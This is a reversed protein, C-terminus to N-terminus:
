VIILYNFRKKNFSFCKSFDFRIFITKIKSILTTESFSDLLKRFVPGSTMWISEFLYASFCLSFMNKFHLLIGNFNMARYNYQTSFIILCCIFINFIYKIDTRLKQFQWRCSDFHTSLRLVCFTLIDEQVM